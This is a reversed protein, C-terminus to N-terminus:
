RFRICVSQILWYGAFSNHHRTLAERMRANGTDTCSHSQAAGPRHVLCELLVTVTRFVPYPIRSVHSSSMFKAQQAVAATTRCFLPACIARRTLLQQGFYEM